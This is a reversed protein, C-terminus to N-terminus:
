MGSLAELLKEYRQDSNAAIAEPTPWNGTAMLAMLERLKEKVALAKQENPYAGTCWNYYTQRSVKFVRAMDTSTLLMHRRLADVKVFDLKNSM